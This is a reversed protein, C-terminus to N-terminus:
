GRAGCVGCSEVGAEPCTRRRVCIVRSCCAGVGALICLCQFSLLSCLNWFFGLTADVGCVTECMVCGACKEVGGEWWLPV